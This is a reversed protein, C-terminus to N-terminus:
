LERLYIIVCGAGADMQNRIAPQWGAGRTGETEETGETEDTGETGETEDTRETGETGGRGRRGRRKRREMRERRRTGHATAGGRNTGGTEEARRGM